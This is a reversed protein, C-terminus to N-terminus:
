VSPAHSLMGKCEEPNVEALIKIDDLSIFGSETPDVQAEIIVQWVFVPLSNTNHQLLSIQSM